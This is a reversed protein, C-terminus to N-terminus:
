CQVCWTVCGWFISQVLENVTACFLVFIDTTLQSEKRPGFFFFFSLQTVMALVSLM